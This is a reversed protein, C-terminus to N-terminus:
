TNNTLEGEGKKFKIGNRNRGWTFMKNNSDITSWTSQPAEHILHVDQKAGRWLIASGDFHLHSYIHVYQVAKILLEFATDWSCRKDCLGSGSYWIVPGACYVCVPLLDLLSGVPGGNSCAYM